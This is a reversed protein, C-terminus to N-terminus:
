TIAEAGASIEALEQTISAQRANNFALTLDDMLDSANQSANRMALMRMAEESALSELSARWIDVEILRPIIASAFVQPSPEVLEVDSATNEKISEFPLLTHLLVEQRLVSHFETYLIKVSKVKRERFTSQALASLPQIDTISPQTPWRDYLAIIDIPAELRNIFTAGKKGVVMLLLKEDSPLTKVEEIFRRFVNTNYAGALGRDSTFVIYLHEKSDTHPTNVSKFAETQALNGMVEQLGVAYRKLQLAADQFRRLKSAAVMEMASTIQNINKVSKIRGKIQQTKAM